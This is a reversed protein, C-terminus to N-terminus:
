ADNPLCQQYITPQYNPELSPLSARYKQTETIKNYDNSKEKPNNSLHDFINESIKERFPHIYYTQHSLRNMLNDPNQVFSTPKKSSVLKHSEDERLAAIIPLGNRCTENSSLKIRPAM